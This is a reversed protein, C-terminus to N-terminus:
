KVSALVNEYFNRAEQGDFPLVTFISVLPPRFSGSAPIQIATHDHM